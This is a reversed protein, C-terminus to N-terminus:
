QNPSAGTEAFIGFGWGDQEDSQWATVFNGDDRIATVANRQDGEVYTNVAFEGGVDVSFSDFRRGFIDRENVDPDPKSEWVIVFEGSGNMAVAPYQQSGETAANVRFQGGLPAGNPEYLRAHIDDRGSSDPDGDWTVVFFGEADMAIAPRTVSNFPTDNVTIAETVATGYADFLRVMISHSSADKFWAIAFNGNPDAAVDPYRGDAKEDSVAFEPGLADGSGDYVRALVSRKGDWPVNISEWVIIFRGDDGAATKPYIQRDSTLSNVAFENSLPLGDPSFRRAFIDEKGDETTGPGQWVAVFGAAADMAVAPETQNGSSTTNIRFEGAAPSFDPNFRRGYIGNSSGDQRYSSWVVVFRGDPAMAIAANKQDQDTRVNVRFEARCMSEFFLTTTIFLCFALRM